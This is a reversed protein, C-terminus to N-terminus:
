IPWSSSKQVRFSFVFNLNNSSASRTTFRSLSFTVNTYCRAINSPTLHFSKHRSKFIKRHPEGLRNSSMGNIRKLQQRGTSVDLWVIEPVVEVHDEKALCLVASEKSLLVFALSGHRIARWPFCFRLFQCHFTPFDKEGECWTIRPLQNIPPNPWPSFMSSINHWTMILQHHAQLQDHEHQTDIWTPWSIENWRRICINKKIDDELRGEPKM